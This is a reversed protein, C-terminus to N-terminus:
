GERGVRGGGREGRGGERGREKRRRTLFLVFRVYFQRQRRNGTELRAVSIGEDPAAPPFDEANAPRVMGGDATRGDDRLVSESDREPRGLGSFFSFDVGNIHHEDSAPDKSSLTDPHISCAPLSPSESGEVM